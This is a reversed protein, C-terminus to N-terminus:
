MVRLVLFTFEGISAPTPFIPECRDMVPDVSGDSEVVVLILRKLKDITEKALVAAPIVPDV